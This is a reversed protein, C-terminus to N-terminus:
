SGRQEKLFVMEEPTSPRNLLENRHPYRGFRDIIAKHRKEYELNGGTKLRAFLTVAVEHIEVSESHMYPMYMFPRERDGLEADAGAAIAEQALCLALGDFAFSQPQDRFMNRSFQDLVIIEALRGKATDRWWFLEAKTASEHVSLFRERLLEDFADDKKFWRSSEIEEFWFNIVETADVRTTM